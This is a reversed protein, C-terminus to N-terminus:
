SFDYRGEKAEIILAGLERAAKESEKGAKSVVFKYVKGNKERKAYSSNKCEFFVAEEKAYIYFYFTKKVMTFFLPLSILVLLAGVGWFIYDFFDKWNDTLFTLFRITMGGDHLFPLAVLAGGVIFFFIAFLCKLLSFSKFKGFKIGSVNRIDVESREGADVLLRRNTLCLTGEGKPSALCQYSRIVNEGKALVFGPIVSNGSLLLDNTLKYKKRLKTEERTYAKSPANDGAAKKEQKAPAAPAPAPQEAPFDYDEGSEKRIDAKAQRVAEAEVRAILAATKAKKREEKELRKAEKEAEKESKRNNATPAENSLLDQGSFGAPIVDEFLSQPAGYQPEPKDKELSVRPTDSLSSGGNSEIDSLDNWNNENM